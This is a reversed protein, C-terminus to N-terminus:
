YSDEDHIISPIIFSSTNPMYAFVLVNGYVSKIDKSKDTAISLLDSAKKNISFHKSDYQSMFIM